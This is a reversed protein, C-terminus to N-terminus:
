SRMELPYSSQIVIAVSLRDLQREASPQQRLLVVISQQPLEGGAGGRVAAERAVTIGLRHALVQALHLYVAVHEGGHIVCLRVPHAAIPSRQRRQVLLSLSASISCTAAYMHALRMSRM